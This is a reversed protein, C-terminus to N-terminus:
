QSVRTGIASVVLVLSDPSIKYAPSVLPRIIGAGECLYAAFESCIWSDPERWDRGTVFGWIATFDYPKGIEAHALRYFEAEQEPTADLAFVTALSFTAYNGPRIQVGPPIDGIWDSRSGLATGDPLIIDTHSYHGQTWWAILTSSLAPERSFRLHIM